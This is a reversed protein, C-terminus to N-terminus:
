LIHVMRTTHTTERSLNFNLLEVRTLFVFEVRYLILYCVPRGWNTPFHDMNLKLSSSLDYFYIPPTPSLNFSSACACACTGRPPGHVECTESDRKTARPKSVSLLTVSESTLVRASASASTSRGVRSVTYELPGHVISIRSDRSSVFHLEHKLSMSVDNCYLARASLASCHPPFM